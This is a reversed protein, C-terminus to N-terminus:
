YDLFQQFVLQLYAKGEKLVKERKDPPIDIELYDNFQRYYVFYGEPSIWGVGDKAEYYAFEHTYPNFLNRSWFFENAPMELQHLLTSTVDNQSSIRSIKQGRFEDKIVDGFFLLPIRRYEKSLISRNYPSNHSHDAILIFLTNPYWSESRANQFYEGLCKDTYHVSNLFDNELEAFNIITDKPQDYPSHSSVTFLMSFFPQNENKLGSIQEALMYEDHIGLKGRPLKQDFDSLEYIRDIGSLMVFSKIGGYILQGGFYFSTAYGYQKLIRIMSPLKQSKEPNHSISTVPTGPFGSILSVIGQESRNGTAYLHTFLIGEKELNKFNPTIGTDGTLSEIVDATWSELLILVINPRQVKLISITTDVPVYNLSDVINRAEGDDFFTFPNKNKFQYNEITSILLSYGSNVAAHNLINHKSYYSHSQNIPIEDWGGRLGLFLLAPTFLCFILAPLIRIRVSSIKLRFYRYYIVFWVTVQAILLFVLIFFSKTSASHYIEAPNNLYYLAKYHLKTKWEEYIGLEATTILFYSLIALATYMMDAYLFWRTRFVMYLVFMLFTFVLMYCATAVDLPLAYWFGSLVESFAISEVKLLQM